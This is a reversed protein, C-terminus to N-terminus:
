SQAPKELEREQFEASRSKVDPHEMVVNGRVRVGVAMIRDIGHMGNM